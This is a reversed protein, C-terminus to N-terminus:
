VYKFMSGGSGVRVWGFGGSGVWVWGFGGLGVRGWGFGGSVVRFWGFGGLVARLGDSVVRFWVFGCSLVRHQLNNKMLIM